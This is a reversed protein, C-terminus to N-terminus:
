LPQLRLRAQKLLKEVLVEPDPKPTERAKRRLRERSEELTRRAYEPTVEEFPVDDKLAIGMALYDRFRRSEITEKDEVEKYRQQKDDLAIYWHQAYIDFEDHIITIDEDKHKRQFELLSLESPSLLQKKVIDPM